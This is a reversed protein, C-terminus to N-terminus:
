DKNGYGKELKTVRFVTQCAKLENTGGKLGAMTETVTGSDKSM